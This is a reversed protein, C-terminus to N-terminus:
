TKPWLTIEGREIPLNYYYDVLKLTINNEIQEQNFCLTYNNYRGVYLITCLMNNNLRAILKYSKNPKLSLLINGNYTQGEYILNNYKDYIFINAQYISKYGLGIFKLKVNKM